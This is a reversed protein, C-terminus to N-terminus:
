KLHWRSQKVKTFKFCFDHGLVSTMALRKVELLLWFRKNNYSNLGNQVKLVCLLHGLNCLLSQMKAQLMSGGLFAGELSFKVSMRRWEDSPPWIKQDIIFRIFFALFFKKQFFISNAWTACGLILHPDLNCIQWTASKLHM